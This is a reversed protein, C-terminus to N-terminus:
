GTSVTCTIWSIGGSKGHFEQVLKNRSSEWLMVKVCLITRTSRRLRERLWPSQLLVLIMRLLAM